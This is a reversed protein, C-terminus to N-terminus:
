IAIKLALTDTHAGSATQRWGPGPEPPPPATPVKTEDTYKKTKTMNVFCPNPSDTYTSTLLYRQKTM